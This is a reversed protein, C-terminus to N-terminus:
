AREGMRCNDGQGNAWLADDTPMPVCVECLLMALEESELYRCRVARCGAM